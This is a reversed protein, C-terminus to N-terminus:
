RSCRRTTPTAQASIATHATHLCPRQPLHLMQAIDRYHQEGRHTHTIEGPGHTPEASETQPEPETTLRHAPQVTPRRTSKNAGPPSPVSLAVCYLPAQVVADARLHRRGHRLLVQRRPQYRRELGIRHTRHRRRRPHPEVDQQRLVIHHVLLQRHLYQVLISM